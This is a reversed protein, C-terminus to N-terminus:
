ENSLKKIKNVINIKLVLPVFINLIITKKIIICLFKCLDAIKEIM